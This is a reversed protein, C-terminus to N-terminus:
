LMGAMLLCVFIKHYLVYSIKKLDIVYSRIRLQISTKFLNKAIIFYQVLRTKCSTKAAFLIKFAALQWLNGQQNSSDFVLTSSSLQVNVCALTTQRIAQYTCGCCRAWLSLTYMDHLGGTSTNCGKQLM